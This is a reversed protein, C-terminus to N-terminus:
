YQYAAEHKAAYRFFRITTALHSKNDQDYFTHQQAYKKLTENTEPTTKTLLEPRFRQGSYERSYENLEKLKCLVQNIYFTELSVIEKEISPCFELYPFLKSRKEWLDKYSYIKLRVTKLFTLYPEFNVQEQTYLNNIEAKQSRDEILSYLNGEIKDKEWKHDVCLSIIFSDSIVAEMAGTLYQKEYIFEFDEEPEYWVINKWFIMFLRYAEVDRHKLEGLWKEFTFNNGYLKINTKKPVLVEMNGYKRCLLGYIGIFQMLGNNIEDKKAQLIEWSKENLYM